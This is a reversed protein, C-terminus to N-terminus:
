VLMSYNLAFYFSAQHSSLDSLETQSFGNFLIAM